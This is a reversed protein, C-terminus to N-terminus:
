ILMEIEREAHELLGALGEVVLDLVDLLFDLLELHIVPEDQGFVPQNSLGIEM